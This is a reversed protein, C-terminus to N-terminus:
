VTKLIGAELADQSQLSATPRRFLDLGIFTDSDTKKAISKVSLFVFQLFIRDVERRLTTRLHQLCNRGLCVPTFIKAPNSLLIAWVRISLLDNIKRILTM